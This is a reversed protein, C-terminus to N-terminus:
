VRTLGRARYAGYSRWLGAYMTREHKHLRTNTLKHTHTTTYHDISRNISRNISQDISQNIQLHTNTLKHTHTTTYQDISRNISQNISQDISQNISRNIPSITVRNIWLARLIYLIYIYYVCVCVRVHVVDYMHMCSFSCFINGWLICFIYLLIYIIVFNVQHQTAYQGFVSDFTYKKSPGGRKSGLTQNVVVEKRSSNCSVLTPQLHTQTHKYPPYIYYINSLSLSSNGNTIITSPPPVIVCM